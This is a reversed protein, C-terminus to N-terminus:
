IGIRDTFENAFMRDPDLAARTAAFTRAEPYLADLQPQAVTNLQGWHPRGGLARMAQEYRALISSAGRTGPLIPMEIMCVADRGRQMALFHPSGAVFRLSVPSTQYIDGVRRAEAALAFIRDVADLYRDMTFAIETSIAPQRNVPGLNLVRYSRDVYPGDPGDGDTLTALAREILAPTLSPWANLFAVLLEEAVRSGAVLAPLFQRHPREISPKTPADALERRTVLCVHDGDGRPYPSVLVEVHRSERLIAGAELLPRVRSWLGLTRTEALHYKPVVRLTLAYVIGVAGLGVVCAHFWDDRQVLTVDRVEAAFRAPDTIGGSPEVRYLTGDAALLEISAVADSLSGLAIGSGHTSTSVAGAITQGDYAGMNALALGRDWLADNLDDIRIGCEARFLTEPESEDRLLRALPDLVRALEHTDVLIGTTQVVDSASHGSGVAKVRLGKARADAIVARLETLTRPAVIALPEVVQNGAYNTWSAGRLAPPTAGRRVGFVRELRDAAALAFADPDKELHDLARAVGGADRELAELAADIEGAITM